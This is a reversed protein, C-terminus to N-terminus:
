TIPADEPKAALDSLKGLIGTIALLAGGIILFWPGVRNEDEQLTWGAHHGAVERLSVIQNTWDLYVAEVIDGDSVSPDGFYFGKDFYTARLVKSLENNGQIRFEFHSTRYGSVEHFYMVVGKAIPRPSVLMPLVVSIGMSSLALGGAIQALRRPGRQYGAQQGMRLLSLIAIGAFLYIVVDIWHLLQPM